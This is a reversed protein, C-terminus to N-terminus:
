TVQDVCVNITKVSQTPHVCDVTVRAKMNASLIHTAMTVMRVPVNTTKVTPMNLANGTMVYFIANKMDTERIAKTVFVNTITVTLTSAADSEEVRVLPNVDSPVMETYVGVALAYMMKATPM